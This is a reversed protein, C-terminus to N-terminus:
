LFLYIIFFSKRISFKRLTEFGWCIFMETLCVKKSIKINKNKYKIENEMTFSHSFGYSFKKSFQGYHM